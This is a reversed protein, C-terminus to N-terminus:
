HPFLQGRNKYFTELTNYNKQIFDERSISSNQMGASWNWFRDEPYCNIAFSGHFGWEATNPFLRVDLLNFIISLILESNLLWMSHERMVFYTNDTFVDHVVNNVLKFFPKILKTDPFKFTRFNGDTIPFVNEIEKTTVQYKDNIKEAFEKLYTHYGVDHSGGGPIVIIKNELVDEIDSFPNKITPNTFYNELLKYSETDAIPLIDCNMFIFANYNEAYEWDWVFREIMTPFKYNEEIYLKAYDEESDIKPPIKEFELSWPYNKRIDNINKIFLNPKHSVSSFYDVDETMIFVDFLDYSENKILNNLLRNRYTPGVAIQVLLLKNSM